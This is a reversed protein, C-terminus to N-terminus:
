VGASPTKARIRDLVSLAQRTEAVDHVRLMAAGAGAASIAAALSGALRDETRAIGGAEALFSKRSAGIMVPRGLSTIERLRALIELNHSTTKGFGIGPDLALCDAPIGEAMLRGTLTRFFTAIEAPCDGYRPEQQMTHPTGQMHMLIWGVRHLRVTEAMLPDRGASIDNVMNAGAQIAATAVVAKCTDVSIPLPCCARLATIVPIIRRIEEEAPVPQSGPRSSEGGIDIADAGEAVMKKAQALASETCVYRGGDFFSDPTLNLIGFIKPPGPNLWSWSGERFTFHM